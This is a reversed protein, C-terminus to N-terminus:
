RALKALAWLLLSRATFRLRSRRYSPNESKDERDAYIGRWRSTLECLDLDSTLSTQISVVTAGPDLVRPSDRRSEMSDSMIIALFCCIESIVFCGLSSFPCREIYVFGPFVVSVAFRSDEMEGSGKEGIQKGEAEM